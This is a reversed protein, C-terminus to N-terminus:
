NYILWLNNFSINYYNKKMRLAIYIRYYIGESKIEIFLYILFYWKIDIFLLLLRTCFVFFASM